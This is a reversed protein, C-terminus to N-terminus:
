DDDDDDDDGEGGCASLVVLAVVGIAVGPLARMLGRRTGSAGSGDSTGIAMDSPAVITMSRQQSMAM